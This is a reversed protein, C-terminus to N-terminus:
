KGVGIVVGLMVSSAALPGTTQQVRAFLGASFRKGIPAMALFGGAFSGGASSGTAAAGAGLIAYLDIGSASTLRQAVGTEVSTLVSFPHRQVGQFELTTFSYTRQGLPVAGIVMPIAHHTGQFVGAGVWVSSEGAPDSPAAAPTGAPLTPVAPSTFDSLPRLVYDTANPCTGQWAIGWYAEWRLIQPAKCGSANPDTSTPASPAAGVPPATAPGQAQTFASSAFLLLAVLKM